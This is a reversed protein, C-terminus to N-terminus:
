EKSRSAYEELLGKRFATSLCGRCPVRNIVEANFCWFVAFTAPVPYVLEQISESARGRISKGRQTCCHM